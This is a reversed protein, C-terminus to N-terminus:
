KKALRYNGTNDEVVTYLDSLQLTWGDGTVTGSEIKTPISVTIREWRPNMLAGNQVDLIGWNDTVRIKPYVNGRDDLPIVDTPDFALKMKEFQIELHPKNVFEERYKEVEEDRIRERNTEEARIVKGDYTDEASKEASPIDAPLLLGFERIFYDSLNTLPTIDKNWGPVSQQLLYGYIPITEYAFSRVFTPFRVFANLSTEFHYIAERKSRNSVIVGTYEALGENLELLNETTKARPFLFYRHERFVMADTLHKKMDYNSQSELAKRLAELELRIYIRGNKDDLQSNDPSYGRFGLSSQLVHFLEHAMLDIRESRENPLPLMVMAWDRGNWHVMTNAINIDLPLTGHYVEGDQKLVGGVDSFNSFVERTMPNVLLMPGYMDRKWLDVCQREATRLESFYTAYAEEPSSFTQGSGTRYVSLLLPVLLIATKM